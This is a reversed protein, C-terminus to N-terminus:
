ARFVAFQLAESQDLTGVICKGGESRLAITSLTVRPSSYLCRFRVFGAPTPPKQFCFVRRATGCVRDGIVSLRMFHPKAKARIEQAVFLLIHRLGTTM